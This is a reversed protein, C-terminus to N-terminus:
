NFYNKRVHHFFTPAPAKPKPVYDERFADFAGVATNLLKSHLCIEDCFMMTRYGLDYLWALEVFDHCEPVPNYMISAMLNSDIVTQSDQSFARKLTEVVEPLPSRMVSLMLRSAVCAQPDKNVILKLAKLIQHPYDIEVYLDGRAAVLFLNDKKRFDRAVYELGQKSEIKLYVESDRGVLEQFEDVARQSEVYSLFYKDMGAQKVKAIKDLELQTFTPGSVELGPHRLHLSEGPIVTFRPGSEFILHRGSDEIAVLPADDAGAKFLVQTPLPVTIPHNIILSFHGPTDIVQEVRLQRGKVDFYVPVSPNISELIALEDDLESANIMASNLRIGALRDDHAFEGFHDLSPWLTVFMKLDQQYM